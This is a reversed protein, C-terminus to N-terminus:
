HSRPALSVFWQIVESLPINGSIVMHHEVALAIVMDANARSILGNREKQCWGQDPSPNLVDMYLPLFDIKKESARMWAKELAGHDFELGVVSKAGADLAIESFEGTNCGIDWVTEPKYQHIIQEIFEAKLKNESSSYSKTSVYDSWVTTKSAGKPKIKYIWSRLQQLLGNYSSKSLKRKGLDRMEETDLDKAKSQAKAPLVVHSLIGLSFKKYFPLLSAIDETSVGELRGRYWANHSIGFLSHLLLPNLFHECFQRYGGWYEGNKYPRLSLVDIFIPSGKVFQINYASADSFVIDHKLAEIQMDLHLLAANKLMLFSWEYPYSISSIYPHELVYVVDKQEYLPHSKVVTSEILWGKSVALDVYGSKQVVDYKNVAYRTVTRYINGNSEYVQGSPDRFSGENKKM